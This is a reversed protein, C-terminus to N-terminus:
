ANLAAIAEAIKGDIYLKTDAPYTVETDGVDSWINNTALLTKVEHPTLQYTVPNELEYFVQLPTANLMEKWADLTSPANPYLESSFRVDLQKANTATNIAVNWGPASFPTSTKSYINTQVNQGNKANAIQPTRYYRYGGYLVGARWDSDGTYAVM